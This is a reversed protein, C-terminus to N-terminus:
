TANRLIAGENVGGYSTGVVVVVAVECEVFNFM